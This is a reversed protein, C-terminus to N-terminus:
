LLLDIASAVLSKSSESIRENCFLYQMNKASFDGKVVGRQFSTGRPHCRDVTEFARLNFRIPTKKQFGVLHGRRSLLSPGRGKEGACSTELAGGLGYVDDCDGQGRRGCARILPRRWFIDHTALVITKQSYLEVYYILVGRGHDRFSVSKDCFFLFLLLLALTM